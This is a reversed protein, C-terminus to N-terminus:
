SAGDAGVPEDFVTIRKDEKLSAYKLTIIETNPDYHAIVSLVDENPKKIVSSLLNRLNEKFKEKDEIKISM